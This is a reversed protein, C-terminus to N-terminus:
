VLGVGLLVLTIYLQFPIMISSFTDSDTSRVKALSYQVLTIDLNTYPVMLSFSSTRSSFTTLLKLTGVSSSLDILIRKAISFSSTFSTNHM